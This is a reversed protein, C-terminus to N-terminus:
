HNIAFHRMGDCEEIDLQFVWKRRAYEGSIVLCSQNSIEAEDCVKGLAVSHVPSHVWLLGSRWCLEKYDDTFVGLPTFVSM